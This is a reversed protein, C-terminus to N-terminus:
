DQNDHHEDEIRVHWMGTQGPKGTAVVNRALMRAVLNRIEAIQDEPGRWFVDNGLIDNKVEVTVTRM